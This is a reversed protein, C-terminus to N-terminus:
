NQGGGKVNRYKHSGEYHILQSHPLSLHFYAVPLELFLISQFGSINQGDGM